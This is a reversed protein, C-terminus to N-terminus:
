RSVNLLRAANRRIFYAGVSSTVATAVAVIPWFRDMPLTRTLLEAWFASYLGVVSWTMFYYHWHMWNKVRQRVLAPVIGRAISALSLLALGHFLGFRGFLYYVQFATANLILMSSIYAYGVQKHRVGSKPMLIVLAGTLMAMMAALLHIFGITSHVM